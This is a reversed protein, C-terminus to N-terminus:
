ARHQKLLEIVGSRDTEDELNAQAWGIADRQYLTDKVQVNAGKELLLKPIDTLMRYVGTDATMDKLDPMPDLFEKKGRWIAFHLPTIQHFDPSAANVNAGHELLFTVVETHGAQAAFHLASLGDEFITHKKTFAHVIDPKDSIFQKVQEMDGSLAATFVDVEKELHKLLYLVVEFNGRYAIERLPTTTGWINEYKTLPDAGHELLYKAADVGRIFSFLTGPGPGVQNALSPDEKLWEDVGANDGLWSCAWVDKIAGREILFDVMNLEAYEPIFDALDIAHILATFHYRPDKENIDAGHALLLDVIDKRGHMVALHLAPAQAQWLSTMVMGSARALSDDQALLAKVKEIDDAQTATFLQMVKETFKDDNSPRQNSLNEQMQNLIRSKLQKRAHHLRSKVTGQPIDLFDAIENQTYESVYYLLVITRQSDPLDQVAAQIQRQTENREMVESPEPMASATGAAYELSVLVPKKIRHQRHIQTYVIRRFWGAFAAPNRLQTLSYFAVIFAEQAVDEALQWDDLMSYAYGVAMDQFRKVIQEYATTNGRQALIVTKELQEM